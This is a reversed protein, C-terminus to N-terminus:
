EIFLYTGKYLLQQATRQQELTFSKMRKFRPDLIVAVYAVEPWESLRDAINKRVAEFLEPILEKSQTKGFIQLHKLLQRYLTFALSLTPYKVAGVDNTFDRIPGLLQIIAEMQKWNSATLVPLEPFNPLVSNLPTKLKYMSEMETVISNWRTVVDQQIRKAKHDIPLVRSEIMSIVTM